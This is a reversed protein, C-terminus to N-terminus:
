PHEATPELFPGCHPHRRRQPHRHYAELISPHVQGACNLDWSLLCPTLAQVHRRITKVAPIGRNAGGRREKQKLLKCNVHCAPLTSLAACLWRCRIVARRRHVATNEGSGSGEQVRREREAKWVVWRGARLAQTSSPLALSLTSGPSTWCSGTVACPAPCM